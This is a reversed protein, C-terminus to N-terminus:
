MNSFPLGSAAQPYQTDLRSFVPKLKQGEVTFSSPVVKQNRKLAYDYISEIINRAYGRGQYGKEVSVHHVWIQGTDSPNTQLGGIGVIRKGEYLTVHTQEDLMSRNLYHLRGKGELMLSRNAAETKIREMLARPGLVDIFTHPEDSIIRRAVPTVVDGPRGALMDAFTRITELPKKEMQALAQGVLREAANLSGGGISAAVEGAEVLNRPNM